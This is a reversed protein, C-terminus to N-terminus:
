VQKMLDRRPNAGYARAQTRLIIIGFVSLTLTSIFLLPSFQPHPDSIVGIIFIAAFVTCFTLFLILADVFQIGIGHAKCPPTWGAILAHWFNMNYALITPPLIYLFNFITGWWMTSVQYYISAALAITLTLLPWRLLGEKWHLKELTGLSIPFAQFTAATSHPSTQVSGLYRSPTNNIQAVISAGLFWTTGLIALDLYKQDPFFNRSHLWTGICLITTLKLWTLLFNANTGGSFRTLAQEKPSLCKWILKEILGSPIKNKQTPEILEVDDPDIEADLKFRGRFQYYFTRDWGNLHMWRHRTLWATLSGAALFTFLLPWSHLARFWPVWTALHTILSRLTESIYYGFALGISGFLTATILKQFKPAASISLFGILGLYSLAAAIAMHLPGESTITFAGCITALVLGTILAPRSQQLTQKALRENSIPLLHTIESSLARWRNGHFTGAILSAIVPLYLSLLIGEDNSLYLPILLLLFVFCWILTSLHDSILTSSKPALRRAKDSSQWKEQAERLRKAVHPNRYHKFKM